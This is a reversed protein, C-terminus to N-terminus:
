AHSTVSIPPHRSPTGPSPCRCLFTHSHGHVSVWACGLVACGWPIRDCTGDWPMRAEGTIRAGLDGLGRCTHSRWTANSPVHALFPAAVHGSCDAPGGGCFCVIQIYGGGGKRSCWQPGLIQRFCCRGNSQCPCQEQLFPHLRRGGGQGLGVCLLPPPPLHALPCHRRSFKRFPSIEGGGPIRFSAAIEYQARSPEEQKRTPVKLIKAANWHMGTVCGSCTAFLCM